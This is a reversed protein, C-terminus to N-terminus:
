AWADDVLTATFNTTSLHATAGTTPSTALLTGSAEDLQLQWDGVKAVRHPLDICVASKTVTNLAHVFAHEGRYATYVWEGSESTARSVPQGAMPGELVASKDAVIQDDLQGTTLNYSRVAYQDPREISFHSILYLTDLTPSVADYDFDGQLEIIKPPASLTADIVAFRSTTDSQANAVDQLVLRDGSRSRGDNSFGAAARAHEFRGPLTQTTAGSRLTTTGGDTVVLQLERAAGAPAVDAVSRSGGCASLAVSLTLCLTLAPVRVM